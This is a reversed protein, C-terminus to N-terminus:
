TLILILALVVVAGAIILYFPWETISFLCKCYCIRKADKGACVIKRTDMNFDIKNEELDAVNKYLIKYKRELQLFFADLFWFAILPIFAILFFRKDSGQAAFGGILAVLTVAWGKLQFSNSGMREIVGEIMELHKMKKEM